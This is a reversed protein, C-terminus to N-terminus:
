APRLRFSRCQAGRDDGEQGMKEVRDGQGESEGSSRDTDDNM